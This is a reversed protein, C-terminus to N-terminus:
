PERATYKADLAPAFGRFTVILAITERAHSAEVLATVANDM